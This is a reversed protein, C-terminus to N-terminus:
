SGQHSLHYLIQGCLLLDLNWGQTLFIGQLLSHCGVGTSKGPYDCLCLLRAPQLGDPRLSDSVVSRSVSESESYKHSEEM